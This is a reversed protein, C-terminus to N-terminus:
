KAADLKAALVALGSTALVTADILAARRGIRGSPLPRNRTRHMLADQRVEWSQNVANAAASDDALARWAM